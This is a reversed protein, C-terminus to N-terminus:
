PLVPFGAQGWPDMQIDAYYVHTGSPDGCSGQNGVQFNINTSPPTTVPFTSTGILSWSGGSFGYVTLEHNGSHALQMTVWYWTNPSLSGIWPSVQTTGNTVEMHMALHATADYGVQLNVGDGGSAGSIQAFDCLNGVSNATYTTKFFFSLSPAETSPGAQITDWNFSETATSIHDIAVGTNSTSNKGSTWISHTRSPPSVTTNYVGGGFTGGWGGPFASKGGTALNTASVTTGNTEGALDTYNGGFPIVGGAQGAPMFATTFDEWTDSAATYPSNTATATTQIWYEPWLNQLSDPLAVNGIRTYNTGATPTVSLNGMFGSILEKAATPTQASGSTPNTSTGTSVQGIAPDTFATSNINKYTQCSIGGDPFTNSTATPTITGSASNPMVYEGAIENSAVQEFFTPYYAGNVSDSIYLAPPAFAYVFYHCDIFDGATVSTLTCSTSASSCSPTDLAITLVGTPPFFLGNWSSINGTATGLGIANLKSINGSLGGITKTDLTAVAPATGTGSLAVDQPNGTANDTFLVNDTKVGTSTPTFTVTVVCNSGATLTSGCTNSSIAFQTGTSLAISTVTMSASGTNTLTVTQGTSTSHTNQNGFSLATPSFGAAPSSATAKFAAIISAQESSPSFTASTATYSGATTGIQIEGIGGNGGSAGVLLSNSWGSGATLTTPEKTLGCFGFLFDKATVTTIATSNCSTKATTNSTAPTVDTTCTSNAVEYITAWATNATGNVKITITDSGSSSAVACGLAMTDGDTNLNVTSVTTYSNGLSDTFTDTDGKSNGDFIAIYLANGATVASTFAITSTSTAGTTKSQVVSPTNQAFAAATTLFLILSLFTKM